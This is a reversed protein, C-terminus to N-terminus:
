FLRDAGFEFHVLTFARMPAFIRKLLLSLWTSSMHENTEVAAAESNSSSMRAADAPLVSMSSWGTRWLKEPALTDPESVIAPADAPSVLICHEPVNATM